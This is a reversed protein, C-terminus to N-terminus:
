KGTETVGAFVSQEGNSPDLRRSGKPVRAPAARGPGDTRSPVAIPPCRHDERIPNVKRVNKISILSLASL